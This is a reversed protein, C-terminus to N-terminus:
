RHTEKKEEVQRLEYPPEQQGRGQQLRALEPSEFFGKQSFFQEERSIVGSREISPNYKKAEADAEEKTMSPAPEHSSARLNEINEIPAQSVGEAQLMPSFRGTSLFRSFDHEEVDEIEEELNEEKGAEAKVKIEKIKPEIERIIKIKPM